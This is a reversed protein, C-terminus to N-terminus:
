IILSYMILSHVVCLLSCNNVYSPIFLHFTSYVHSYQQDSALGLDIIVRLCSEENKDRTIYRVKCASPTSLENCDMYHVHKPGCAHLYLLLM